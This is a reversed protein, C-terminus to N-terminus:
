ESENITSAYQVCMEADPYVPVNRRVQKLTRASVFVNYKDM